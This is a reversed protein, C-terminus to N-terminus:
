LTHTVRDSGLLGALYNEIKENTDANQDSFEIGIGGERNGQAGLPTLWVVRGSISLREPEGMLSLMLLVEDGLRYPKQTAVFLGGKPLFPMYAKHLAAQDALTLSLVERQDNTM